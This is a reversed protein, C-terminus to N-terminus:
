GELLAALEDLEIDWGDRNQELRTRRYLTKGPLLEFGSEVVTVETGGDADALTFRVLTSDDSLLSEAPIGSWRYGFSDKAEVETIEFPFNGYGEWDFRGTAGVELATYTTADGFWQSILETETLAAWVRDRPAAITITRRITHGVIKARDSVTTGKVLFELRGCPSPTNTRRERPAHLRM